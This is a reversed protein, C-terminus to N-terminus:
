CRQSLSDAVAKVKEAVGEAAVPVATRTSASPDSPTSDRDPKAVRAEPDGGALRSTQHAM